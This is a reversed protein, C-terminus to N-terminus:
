VEGAIQEILKISEQPNLAHTRIMGHRQSLAHVQEPEYVCVTGILPAEIYALERSEATTLIVHSGDLGVYERLVLPLVQIAVNRLEAVDVVRALQERLVNPGGVPRRLAAEDIILSVHAAPRRTLLVQREMRGQLRLDVRDEDLRPVGDMLATRAYAETQLLGPIAMSDYSMFSLCDKEYERQELFQEPYKGDEDLQEAALILAGNAKVAADFTPIQKRKPVRKGSEFSEITSDAYSVAEALDQRSMGALERHKRLTAGFFRMAPSPDSM